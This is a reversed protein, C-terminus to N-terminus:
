FRKRKSRNRRMKELVESKALLLSSTAASKKFRSEAAIKYDLSKPDNEIKAKDTKSRPRNSSLCCM